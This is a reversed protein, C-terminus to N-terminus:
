PVSWALLDGSEFGDFFVLGPPDPFPNEGHVAEGDLFTQVVQVQSLQATPIEFPNRDLVVLDARKGVEISGVRDEQRMLYAANLTYARIATDLSPLSQDGRSLAREMGAFPSLEGVDYDSSLVVTAGAEHLARLRWQREDIRGTGLLFALEYAHAPEVSSFSMQMDAIVGLEAFRPVDSPQVLEVHTLRHRAGPGQAAEIANLAEHVGRDGIAHIHFDFGVAGLTQIYSQLRAQDSYNLGTSGALECCLYPDLLAATRHNLEGDSYIKIQSARLLSGPDDSYMAALTSLQQADDLYPYAWLSLVVRSTLTHNQAAREYAEVYGRRWHARADVVSTIGHRALEALGDALAQDNLADLTANPTLALDM